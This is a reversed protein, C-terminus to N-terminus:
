APRSGVMLFVLRHMKLYVVPVLVLIDGPWLILAKLVPEARGTHVFVDLVGALFM